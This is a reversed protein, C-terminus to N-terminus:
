KLDTSCEWINAHNSNETGLKNKHLKHCKLIKRKAKKDMRKELKSKMTGENSVMTIVTLKCGGYGRCKTSFDWKQQFFFYLDLM